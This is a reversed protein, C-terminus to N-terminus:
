QLEIISFLPARWYYIQYTPRYSKKPNDNLEVFGKRCVMPLRLMALDYHAMLIIM